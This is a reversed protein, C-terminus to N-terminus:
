KQLMLIFIVCSSVAIVLSEYQLLYSFSSSFATLVESKLMPGVWRHLSFSFILLLFSDLSFARHFIEPEKEGLISFFVTAM